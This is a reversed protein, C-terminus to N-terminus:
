QRVYQGGSERALERLLPSPTGLSITHIVIRRTLNWARVAKAIARPDLVKGATPAGDSLLYITDVEKDQFAKELAGYINTAGMPRTSRVFAEAKRKNSRTAPLLHKEWARVPTSFFVINFRVKKDFRALAQILAAKALDLRTRGATDVKAAMSGSVDLVFTVRQSVVPIGYYTNGYRGKRAVRKRPPPPRFRDKEREWWYKWRALDDHFSIGAIGALAEEVEQKLRGTERGLREILIPVARPDRVKRAYAYFASRVMWNRDWALKSLAPFDERDGLDALLDLARARFAPFGSRAFKLLTEKWSPDGKRLGHLSDLAELRLVMPGKRLMGELVVQGLRDGSTGLARAAERRIEMDRDRLARRLAKRAEPVKSGALGLVSLLRLTRSKSALGKRIWWELCPGDQFRSARERFFGELGLPGAAALAVFLAQARRTGLRALEEGLARALAPHPRIRLQLEWAVARDLFAQAEKGLSRALPRVLAAQLIPSTRGSGGQFYLAQFFGLVKPPLRDPLARVLRERSLPVLLKWLSPLARGVRPEGVRRGLGGALIAQVQPSTEEPTRSLLFATVRPDKGSAIRSATAVRAAPPLSAEKRFRELLAAPGKGEKGGPPAAPLPNALSSM